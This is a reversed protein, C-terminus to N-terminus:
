IIVKQWNRFSFIDGYWKEKLEPYIINESKLALFGIMWSFTGGTLIINNCTSGFMITEVESMNVIKLDYKEILSKCITHNIDDSSIYGKNFKLTKITNNYYQYLCLTKNTVDGLRVHIFLDNNNNYRLKFKNKTLIKEFIKNVVFYNDIMKCFRTTHFWVNNTIIVNKPTVDSEFLNEFNYDTLLLNKKYIYKGEKFFDIGLENFEKEYKYTSKLNFKLSFLHLCMNVFFLNGFRARHGNTNNIYSFSRDENKGYNTWHNWANKKNNKNKDQSTLEYNIKYYTKWPFNEYTINSDNYLFNTEDQIKFCFVYKHSILFDETNNRFDKILIHNELDYIYILKGYNDYYTM